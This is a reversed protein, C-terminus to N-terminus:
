RQSEGLSGYIDDPHSAMLEDKSSKKTLVCYQSFLNLWDAKKEDYIHFSHLFPSPEPTYAFKVYNEFDANPSSPRETLVVFPFRNNVAEVVLTTKVCTKPNDTRGSDEAILDLERSKGTRPDKHAVNPEVFFYANSLARVLRSELLYGSRDLCARVQDLTLPPEQPM